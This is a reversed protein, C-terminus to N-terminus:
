KLCLEKYSCKRCKDKFDTREFHNLEYPENTYMDAQFQKMYHVSQKFTELLSEIDFPELTTEVYKNELLYENRVRIDELQVNKTELLYYAYLALQQRDDTSSKGTKWDVIVWKETEADQYLLDMVLYVKIDDVMFFRFEEPKHIYIQGEKNMLEQITYSALFNEFISNLRGQYLAVEEEDLVGNYYMSFFMDYQNPKEKWASYQQKSTIYAQNLKQRAREVLSAVTPLKKSYGIENITEEIIRHAISGFFMPLHQLKKLRYAHQALPDVNYKLWGNHSVYYDYAYKKQCALVSKSRSLSWSFEPYKKIEFM